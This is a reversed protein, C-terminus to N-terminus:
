VRLRSAIATTTADFMLLGQFCKLYNIQSILKACGAASLWGVAFLLKLLVNPADISLNFPRLVVTLLNPNPLVM